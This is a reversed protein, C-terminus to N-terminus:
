KTEENAKRLKLWGEIIGQNGSAFVINQGKSTVALENWRNEKKYVFSWNGNTVAPLPMDISDSTIPRTILPATLFSAEMASLAESIHYHPLEIFKVPLIGTTIHVGGRPDILLVLSIPKAMPDCTLKIEHSYSIFNTNEKKSFGNASHFIEFADKGDSLFYGILGDKLKNVDGLRVSFKVKELGHTNREGLSEWSQDFAYLGYLELKLTARALALPRGILVSLTQDQRSGLTEIGELTEDIHNLFKEFEDPHAIITDIVNQLNVDEVHLKNQPMDKGPPAIQHVVSEDLALQLSGLIIGNKDYIILSRDLHNPMIWGFVPSTGPDSNSEIRCKHLSSIWRFQLRSPQTIRPTLAIRSENGDTRMIESVFLDGQLNENERKIKQIQGFSDIVWIRSIDLFGERIPNFNYDVLPSLHNMKEVLKSIDKALYPNGGYKKPRDFVPFQLTQKRMLLAENFGGLSQSLIDMNGLVDDDKLLKRLNQHAHPSLATIGQYQHHQTELECNGSYEFDIDGLHWNEFGLENTTILNKPRLLEVEWLM